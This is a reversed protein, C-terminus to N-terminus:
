DTPLQIIYDEADDENVDQEPIALDRVSIGAAHVSNPDGSILPHWEALGRGDAIRRYACSTPMWSLQELNDPTLVVCDPVHEQRQQYHRCQCAGIKLLRCAISTYFIKGSYEDELKHLCCRGCGDCLDEWEQQTMEGLTKREWYPTDPHHKTAM